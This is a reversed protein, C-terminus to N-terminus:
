GRSGGEEPAAPLWLEARLGRGPESSLRVRGRHADVVNHVLALGLGTGRGVEKSTYFLDSIRALESGDVGPGNDEVAICLEAGEVDLEVRIRPAAGPEEELADLANVLLNLAAQGLENRAGLVAPLQPSPDDPGLREGLAFLELEVGQKAARPRALDLADRAVDCLGVPASQAPRPTFRLLKSVTQRIRELGDSLLELYRARREEPLGDRDLARVANQLGGLPNNIEHAIGAALEGMAALRRQTMAAAEASRAQATAADVERRLRESFGQVESTMSNFTRVLAAIEDTRAPAQVRQSLDGASVRRAARALEEVPSLVLRQLLLFTSGTLLLTSALFWPFLLRFVAGVDVPGPTRYWLGGWVTERELLPDWGEIRIARGGRVQDVPRAQEMAEHIGGLVEDLEFDSGRHGSGVPNLVVGRARFGGDGRRDVAGSVVVADEWVGWRPWQLIRAANSEGMPRLLHRVLDMNEMFERTRDEYVDAARKTVLVGGAAFVGINIIAVLTFARVRLSLRM